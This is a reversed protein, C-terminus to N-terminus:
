TLLLFWMKTNFRKPRYTLPFKRCTGFLHGWIQFITVLFINLIILFPWILTLANLSTPTDLHLLLMDWVWYDRKLTLLMQRVTLEEVSTGKMSLSPPGNVQSQFRRGLLTQYPTKSDKWTIYHRSLTSLWRMSEFSSLTRIHNILGMVFKEIPLFTDGLYVPVACITDQKAIPDQPTPRSLPTGGDVLRRRDSSFATHVHFLQVFPSVDGYLLSPDSSATPPFIETTQELTAENASIVSPTPSSNQFNRSPELLAAFYKSFM